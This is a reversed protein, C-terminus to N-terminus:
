LIAVIPDYLITPPCIPSFPAVSPDLHTLTTSQHDFSVHCRESTRDSIKYPIIFLASDIMKIAVELHMDGCKTSSMFNKRTWISIEMKIKHGKLKYYITNMMYQVEEVSLMGDKDLDYDDFLKYLMKRMEEEGSTVHEM